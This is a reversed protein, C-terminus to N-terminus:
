RAKPAFREPHDTYIVVDPYFREFFRVLWPHNITYVLLELNHQKALRYTLPNMLWMNLSIGTAHLRLASHIIDFPSFHELVYTPIDPRLERIRAINDHKFSTVYVTVEPYQQLLRALEDACGSDKIDVMIPMKDGILAFVEALGLIAQNNKLKLARLEDLTANHVSLHKTAVRGTHHDHIVVLQGDSTRHVDFEAAEIAHELGALVSDRSNELALGAAGRHGFIRM